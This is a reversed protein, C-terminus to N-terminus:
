ATVDIDKCASFSEPHRVNIDADQLIVVRVTGASGGTYPDILVDMGSGLAYILDSWNGFIAARGTSLTGKVLNSPLLNTTLAKYGNLPTPGAEWIFFPFTSGIKATQKLKGRVATDTIYGLNGLDANATAVDSELEIISAWTPAGGNTGIAVSGIGSTQLVGTPQNSSGSGNLGATELTRAVTAMIDERAFAEADLSTQSLFKRSIDTYTGCTKPSFTVQDITANSATPATSEAVWYGTSTASKRPIAFLGQMGEMVTAGAERTVMKARLIDILSADLITPISGTGTTINLVRKELKPGINYPVMIGVASRGRRKELEQHTELELGDLRGKGERQELGQRLAKVISYSHRTEVETPLPNHPQNPRNRLETEFNNLRELRDIEPELGKAEAMRLEFNTSEQENMVRSDKSAADAIKRAEAVFGARKQRMEFVKM